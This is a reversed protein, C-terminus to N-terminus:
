TMTFTTDREKITAKMKQVNRNATRIAREFNRMSDSEEEM